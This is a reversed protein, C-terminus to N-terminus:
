ILEDKGFYKIADLQITLEKGRIVELYEQKPRPEQKDKDLLNMLQVRENESDIEWKRVWYFRGIYKVLVLEM